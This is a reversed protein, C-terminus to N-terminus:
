SKEIRDIEDQVEKLQKRLKRRLFWGTEVVSIELELELVKAKLKSVDPGLMHSSSNM